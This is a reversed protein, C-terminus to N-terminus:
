WDLEPLVKVNVGDVSQLYFNERKVALLLSTGNPPSVAGPPVVFKFVTETLPGAGLMVKRDNEFFIAVTDKPPRKQSFTVNVHQGVRWVTNETPYVISSTEQQSVSDGILLFFVSLLFYPLLM